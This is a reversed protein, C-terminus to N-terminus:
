PARVFGQRQYDDLCRSERYATEMNSWGDSYYPGCQATQSTKPNYLKVAETCGSVLMFACAAAGAIVYRTM